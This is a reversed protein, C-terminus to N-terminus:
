CSPFHELASGDKIYTVGIKIEEMEDLTDLKTLALSTYGNVMSTYKLLPIDLWGCRRKRGTTVGWEHGKTQLFEGIENDQETPFPGDGVRTTYAKVVGHVEGIFKPPIGLGTCVGGISCNSSTVYPYTGFDIDLMAANAGEVLVHKGQKMQTHLFSITETVLPRVREALQRYREIEAAKDVKLGPFSAMYNDALISFKNSFDSFDDMLDAVRGM